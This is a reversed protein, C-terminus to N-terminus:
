RVFGMRAFNPFFPFPIPLGPLKDWSHPWYIYLARGILLERSVYHKPQSPDAPWLRSDKSAASNDGLMLFQDKDLKFDVFRRSGFVGWEGPQSLFGIPGLHAAATMDFEPGSGVTQAIYYIDRFVRLRSVKAAAGRSGIRVPHLDAATPTITITPDYEVPRGFSVVNGDIWLILQADVNAFRICHRGPGIVGPSSLSEGTPLEVIAAKSELDLRCLFERGGKILAVLIQGSPKDADLQFEAVLDGVWHLPPGLNGNPMPDDYRSGNRNRTQETNYAAFDNVLQPRPALGGSREGTALREWDDDTPMYHAYNLWMDQQATGAVSFSRYDASPQWGSPAVPWPAWRSPWGKRIMDPVVYDNDYVPQMMALIKDPPKRAISFGSEGAREIFIDGYQIRVTENPLGAVRKIYNTRAGGPYRFVAVEWRKPDVFQYPFKAVLIRDGNFSPYSKGQPNDRGMDVTHGCMPCTGAVVEVPKLRGRQDVEDSASVQFPYKCVPCVLDKHRGMLTPAMSGTPIVFAEAEFTRFLFALVFAVVISEIVERMAAQSFFPQKTETKQRKATEQAPDKTRGAKPPRVREGGGSQLMSAKKRSM